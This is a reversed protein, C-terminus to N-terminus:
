ESIWMVREWEICNTLKSRQASFVLGKGHGEERILWGRCAGTLDWCGGEGIGMELVCTCPYQGGEENLLVEQDRLTMRWRRM